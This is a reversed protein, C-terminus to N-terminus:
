LRCPKWKSKGRPFSAATPRATNGSTFFVPFPGMKKSLLSFCPLVWLKNRELQTDARPRPQLGMRAAPGPVRPLGPTIGECLIFGLRCVAAFGYPCGLEVGLPASARALSPADGGLASCGSAEDGFVRQSWRRSMRVLSILGVAQCPKLARPALSPAMWVLSPEHGLSRRGTNGPLLSNRCGQGYRAGAPLLM